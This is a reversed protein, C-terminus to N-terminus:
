VGDVRGCESWPVDASLASRRFESLLSRGFHPNSLLTPIQQRLSQSDPAGIQYWM